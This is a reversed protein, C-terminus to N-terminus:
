ICTVKIIIIKIITHVHSEFNIIIKRLLVNYAYIYTRRTYYHMKSACEWLEEKRIIKHSGLYVDVLIMDRMLFYLNKDNDNSM